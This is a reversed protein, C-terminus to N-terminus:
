PALPTGILANRLAIGGLVGFITAGIIHVAKTPLRNAFRSGFYIVPVNALMMGLTTGSVVGFFDHYRAALAITVVQTKDGVEAIFFTFVTTGFIGMARKPMAIEGQDLKDPILIWVAMLAFSAVVAWNLVTPSLVGSLLTGIGGAGAHNTLTAVLVGLIIPLPKRYRAALVLSLLQTKDGIEALAVLSLSVLFPQLM